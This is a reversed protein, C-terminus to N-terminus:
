VGDKDVEKLQELYESRRDPFNLGAFEGYLYIAAMDYKVAAAELSNGVGLYITKYNFHIYAQYRSVARKTDYVGKFKGKTSNQTNHSQDTIRLNFKRCDLKDGNIHDVVRGAPANVLLRHLYGLKRNAVYGAETIYWSISMTFAIDEPDVQVERGKINWKL